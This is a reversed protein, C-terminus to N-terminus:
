EHRLGTTLVDLKEDMQRTPVFDSVTRGRRVSPLAWGLQWGM